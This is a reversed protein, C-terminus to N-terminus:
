LYSEWALLQPAGEPGDVAFYIRVGPRESRLYSLATLTDTGLDEANLVIADVCGDLAAQIGEAADCALLVSPGSAAPLGHVPIFLQDPHPHCIAMRDSRPLSSRNVPTPNAPPFM